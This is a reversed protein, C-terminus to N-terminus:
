KRTRFSKKVGGLAQLTSRAPPPSATLRGSLGVGFGSTSLTTSPQDLPEGRIHRFLFATNVHADPV